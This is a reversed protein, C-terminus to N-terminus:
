AHLPLDVTVVTPGRPPSAIDLRGDVAHVRDTLGVLGSSTSGLRSLQAGGKGDDRVVVRLWGGNDTCTIAARSAQAHQAVNSLLEAVCFYAIAEIAQTPRQSLSLTLETPVTSRAALTSLAGELGIDLAPPHIGRALDRLEVIAEKAGRHADDVLQRVHELDLTDGEDLKEKAMGLRMALAVLQAQTGDHLDREIRRLTAASSDVTQTRAQELSRVRASLADPALLVRMVMRDLYVVGRVAWPAAFLLLVGTLFVGLGHFFGTQGGTFLGSGFVLRPLGFVGVGNGEGGWVPYILCVFADWWVAFGFFIGIAALPVKVLVYAMARWGARDRLASQLWGLLGPRPAFPEPDEIEEGLLSDALRRHLGGIARVGRVSLAIIFLGVFTVTLLTGASLTLAVFALGLFALPAGTTVFLFEMWTRREWPQRWILRAAGKTRESRGRAALATMMQAFLSRLGPGAEPVQTM